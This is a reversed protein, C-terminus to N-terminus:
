DVYFKFIMSAYVNIMHDINYTRTMTEGSTADIYLQTNSANINMFRAGIELGLLEHIAYNFGIDGGYYANSVEYSKGIDDDAFKMNILGGNIGLFLNFDHTFNILYQLSGGISNAYDFAGTVHYYRGDIFVRYDENEAGIKLGLMGFDETSNNRGINVDDASYEFQGYGTEIGVLSKSTGDYANLGCIMLALILVKKM